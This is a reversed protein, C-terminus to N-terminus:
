IVLLSPVHRKDFLFDHAYPNDFGLSETVLSTIEALYELLTLKIAMYSMHIENLIILRKGCMSHHTSKVELTTLCALCFQHADRHTGNQINNNVKSM